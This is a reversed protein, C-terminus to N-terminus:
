RRILASTRAIGWHGAHLLDHHRKIVDLYQRAPVIIKDGKWLRGHYIQQPDILQNTGAVFYHDRIDQDVQYDPWWSTM